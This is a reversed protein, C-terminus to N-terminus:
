GVVDGVYMGVFKADQLIDVMQSALVGVCVDLAGNSSPPAPVFFAGNPIVGAPCPTVLRLSAVPEMSFAEGFDADYLPVGVWSSFVSLSPGPIFFGGERVPRCQQEWRILNRLYDETAAGRISNHVVEAVKELPWSCLDGLTPVAIVSNYIANGFYNIPPEATGMGKEKINETNLYKKGRSNIPVMNFVPTSPDTSRDARAIAQWMHAVVIDNKSYSLGDLLPNSSNCHARLSEIVEPTFRFRAMKKPASAAATALQIMVKAPVFMECCAPPRPPKKAEALAAANPASADEPHDDPFLNDILSPDHICPERCAGSRFYEGWNNMLLMISAVDGVNHHLYVMFLVFSSGNYHAWTVKVKLIGAEGGIPVFEDEEQTLGLRHLPWRAVAGSALSASDPVWNNIESSVFRVFDQQPNSQICLAGCFPPAIQRMLEANVTPLHQQLFSLLSGKLKGAVTEWQEPNTIAPSDFVFLARTQIPPQLQDLSSLRIM